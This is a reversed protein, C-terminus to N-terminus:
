KSLHADLETFTYKRNFLAKGDRNVARNPTKDLQLLDNWIDPHNTKLHLLETEKANPCFFCGGRHTVSYVPSYLGEQKCLEVADAETLSYKALLSIQNKSLRELRRPEDVAIGLYWIVEEGDFLHQAKKIAPLKCDRAIDCRGPIPFGIVKGENQGRSRRRNFCQKFTKPSDVVITEIGWSKLKPIAVNFIFDEHEPVEASRHEDYMVRAYVVADIPEGHRKALIVTALSDKGFSCSVVYKM